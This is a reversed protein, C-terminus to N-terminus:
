NWVINIIFRDIMRSKQIKFKGLRCNVVLIISKIFLYRKQKTKYWLTVQKLSSSNREKKKRAKVCRLIKHLIRKKEKNKERKINETANNQKKNQKFLTKKKIFKKFYNSIIIVQLIKLTKLM